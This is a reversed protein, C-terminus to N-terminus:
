FMVAKVALKKMTTEDLRMTPFPAVKMMPMKLSTKVLCSILFMTAKM